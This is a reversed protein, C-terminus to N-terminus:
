LGRSTELLVMGMRLLDLQITVADPMTVRWETSESPASFPEKRLTVIGSGTVICNSRRLIPM